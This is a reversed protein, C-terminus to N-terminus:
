TSSSCKKLLLTRAAGRHQDIHFGGCLRLAEATLAKAIGLRGPDLVGLVLYVRAVRWLERLAALATEEDRLRDLSGLTIVADYAADPIGPLELDFSPYVVVEDGASAALSTPEYGTVEHKRAQLEQLVYCDGCGFEFFTRANAMSPELSLAQARLTALGPPPGTAEFQTLLEERSPM